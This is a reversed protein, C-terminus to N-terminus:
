VQTFSIRVEADTAPGPVVAISQSRFTRRDEDPGSRLDFTVEVFADEETLAFFQIKADLPNVQPDTDTVVVQDPATSNWVTGGAFDWDPTINGDADKVELEAVGPQGVRANVEAM